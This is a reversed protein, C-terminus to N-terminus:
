SGALAALALILGIAKRVTVRERLVFIGLLAAVIFGMQAIPVVVSAQGAAIGHLLFITAGLLLVAAATGYKFTPRPPRLQRDAGYVVLTALPM